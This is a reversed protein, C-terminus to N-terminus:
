KLMMMETFTNIGNIEELKPQNQNNEMLFHLNMENRM